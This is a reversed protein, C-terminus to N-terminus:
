PVVIWLNGDAGVTNAAVRTSRGEVRMQGALEFTEAAIDFFQYIGSRISFTLTM